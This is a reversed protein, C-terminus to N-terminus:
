PRRLAAYAVLAALALIVLAVLFLLAQWTVRPAAVAVSAAAPDEPPPSLEGARSPAASLSPDTHLVTTEYGSSSSVTTDVKVIRRSPEDDVTTMDFKPAVKAREGEPLSALMAERLAPGDPLLSRLADLMEAADPYREETSLRLAGHVVAAVEPSIWPAREQISPPQESCISIILDGIAHIDQYPTM